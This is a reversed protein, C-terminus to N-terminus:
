CGVADALPVAALMGTALDLEHAHRWDVRPFEAAIWRAFARRTRLKLPVYTDTSDFAQATFPSGPGSITIRMVHAGPAMARLCEALSTATHADLVAENRPLVASEGVVEAGDRVTRLPTSM